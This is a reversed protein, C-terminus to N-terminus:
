SLYNIQLELSKIEVTCCSILREKLNKMTKIYIGQSYTNTQFPIQEDLNLKSLIIIITLLRLVLDYVRFRSDQISLFRSLEILM